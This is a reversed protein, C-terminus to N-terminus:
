RTTAPHDSYSRLHAFETMGGVVSRNRATALRAEHM